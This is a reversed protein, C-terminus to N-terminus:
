ERNRMEEGHARLAADRKEECKFSRYTEFGDTLPQSAQAAKRAQHCEAYATERIEAKEQALQDIRAQREASAQLKADFQRNAEEQRAREIVEQQRNHEAAARRDGLEREYRQREQEVAERVSGPLPAPVYDVNSRRVSDELAYRKLWEVFLFRDSGVEGNGYNGKRTRTGGPAVPDLSAITQKLQDVNELDPMESGFPQGCAALALLLASVIPRM